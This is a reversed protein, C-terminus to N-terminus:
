CSSFIPLSYGCITPLILKHYKYIKGETKVQIFVPFNNEKKDEGVVELYADDYSYAGDNSSGCQYRGGDEPQANVLRLIHGNAIHGEPLPQGDQRSWQVKDPNPSNQVRCNFDLNTGQLVRRSKPTLEVKLPNSKDFYNVKLEVQSRSNGFNNVVICTWVGSDSRRVTPFIVSGDPNVNKVYQNEPSLWYTKTELRSTTRCELTVSQGEQAQVQRETIADPKNNQRNDEQEQRQREEEQRRREEEQRQREEEQRRRNEEEQRKREFERRREEESQSDDEHPRDQERPKIAIRQEATGAINSASCIYVGFEADNADQIQLM